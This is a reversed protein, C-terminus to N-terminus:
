SWWGTPPTTVLRPRQSTSIQRRNESRAVSSPSGAKRVEIERELQAIRYKPDKAPGKRDHQRIGNRVTSGFGMSSPRVAVHLASFQSCISYNRHICLQDRFEPWAVLRAQHWVCQRCRDSPRGRRLASELHKGTFGTAHPPGVMYLVRYTARCPNYYLM